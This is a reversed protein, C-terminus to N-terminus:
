RLKMSRWSNALASSANVTPTQMKNNEVFSERKVERTLYDSLEGLTINGKSDQLKKLLYYTFMGHQQEKYPYATEDGQAATFVVMNGEPASPKVKIAIGRASAMMQGDRKSGSFCADLFIMTRQAQMKGFEAYLKQLSYATEADGGIGDTPLLYATKDGEDPIGHGAYYFIAKGQGGCVEMAQKLWRIAIRLDNLGANTIFRIQKEPVGLTQQVYQKFIKADNEAFPVSAENKYNENGIIVAFTNRDAEAIRPIDKDVNTTAMKQTEQKPAPTAAVQQVTKSEVKPEVKQDVKPEQKPASAVAKETETKPSASVSNSEVQTSTKQATSPSNNKSNKSLDINMRMFLPSNTNVVLTKILEKGDNIIKVEHKGFYLYYNYLPINDIYEGDIYIDSGTLSPIIDTFRGTGIDLLMEYTRASELPKPFYYEHTTGFVHHMITLKKSGRPLYVWIESGHDEETAFVMNANDFVFGKEPTVIKILACMDNNYDMVRKKYATPDSELLKFGVVKMQANVAMIPLLLAFLTIFLKQKM